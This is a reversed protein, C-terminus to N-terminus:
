PAPEVLELQTSAAFWYDRRSSDGMDGDHGRTFVDWAVTLIGAADVAVVTGLSGHPLVASSSTFRIRDGPKYEHKSM